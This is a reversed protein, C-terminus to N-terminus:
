PTVGESDHMPNAQLVHHSTNFDDQPDPYHILKISDNHESRTKHLPRDIHDLHSSRFQAILSTMHFTVSQHSYTTYPFITSPCYISLRALQWKTHDAWLLGTQSSNWDRDCISFWCLTNNGMSISNQLAFVSNKFICQVKRCTGAQTGLFSDELVLASYYSQM